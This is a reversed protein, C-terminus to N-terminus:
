PAESAPIPKGAFYEGLLIEQAGYVAHERCSECPYERADPEIGDCHEAGCVLCYGINECEMMTREVAECILEETIDRHVKPSTRLAQMRELRTTM